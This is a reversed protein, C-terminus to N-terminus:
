EKLLPLSNLIVTMEVFNQTYHHEHQHDTMNQSSGVVGPLDSNMDEWEEEKVKSENHWSTICKTSCNEGGFVLSWSFFYTSLNKQVYKKM